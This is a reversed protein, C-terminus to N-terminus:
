PISEAIEVAWVAPASPASTGGFTGDVVIQVYYFNEGFNFPTSITATSSGYTSTTRSVTAGSVASDDGDSKRIRRLTATVKGITSSTGQSYLILQDGSVAPSHIPCTLYLTKGANVYVIGGFETYDDASQRTKCSSAVASWQEASAVATSMVLFLMSALVVSKM